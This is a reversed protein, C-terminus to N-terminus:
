RPKTPKSSPATSAMPRRSRASRRDSLIRRQANNNELQAAWRFFSKADAAMIGANCLKIKRENANADKYEVIRDLAARWGRDRPWLGHKAFPLRCDGHGGKRQAAFSAEFTAATVLPMDGYAIIVDGSFDALAERACAAAHGTGLQKDQIVTEAGQAKAFARM